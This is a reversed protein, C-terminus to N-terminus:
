KHGFKTQKFFDCWCQGVCTSGDHTVIQIILDLALIHEVLVLQLQPARHKAFRMATVDTWCFLLYCSIIYMYMHCINTYIDIHIYIYIHISHM